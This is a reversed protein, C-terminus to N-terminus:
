HPHPSADRSQCRSHFGGLLFASQVRLSLWSVSEQKARQSMGRDLEPHASPRLWPKAIATSCQASLLGRQSRPSRTSAFSGTLIKDECRTLYHVLAIQPLAGTHM